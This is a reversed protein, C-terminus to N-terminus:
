ISHGLMLNGSLLIHLAEPFLLDTRNTNWNQLFATNNSHQAKNDQHKHLTSLATGHAQKGNLSKSTSNSKSWLAFASRMIVHQMITFALM